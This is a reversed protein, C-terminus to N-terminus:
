DNGIEEMVRYNILRIHEDCDRNAARDKYDKLAKEFDDFEEIFYDHFCDIIMYRQKVGYNNDSDM